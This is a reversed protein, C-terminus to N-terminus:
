KVSKELLVATEVHMSMPFMDVPHVEKLVYADRCLFKLDRALTAADCSIYVIAAPEMQLMTQLLKEHCGKRPPDVVIVDARVRENEYLAPIVTEAAGLLFEANTIRNTEANEEADRVASAVIEVGYVKKTHRALFLSITGIGCYADIVTEGGTFAPFALAKQYLLETQLPNVQFFSQPSIKFRIGCVTDTIFGEGWLIDTEKGLITTTKSKNINVAICKMGAIKSLKQVLQKAKPLTDGNIIMCVMLEGTNYGSRIMVGRVTGTHKKENYVSIKQDIIFQKIRDLIDRNGPHQICCDGADVIDHTHASYFGIIPKGDKEGVAYQVKNRYNFPDDMGLIDNIKVTDATELLNEQGANCEGTEEIKFGGIRELNDRVIKTKLRLQEGYSLGQLTCGGCLGFVPCKPTVRHASPEIIEILKAFGYSKKIKTIMVRAFDGPLTGPVFLTFNDIRGIGEGDKGM